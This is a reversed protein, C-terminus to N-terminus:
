VNDSVIQQCFLIREKAVIIGYKQHSKDRLFGIDSVNKELKFCM